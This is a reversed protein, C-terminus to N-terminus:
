DVEDGTRTDAHSSSMLKVLELAEDHGRIREDLQAERVAELLRKFEPGPKMGIAQLDDGTLLPLPNLDEPRSEALLKECFEVHALDKGSAIADARHLALLEGIGPHALIPKLKSPRMMPADALYQHHQVLWIIRDSDANSLRLRKCLEATIRSGLHEHHHFTYRDPTRAFTGPKGIDHLLAAMALPFSVAAPEPWLPGRLEEIVRVTHEWLDGTPAHPPGQPIGITRALEPLVPPLLDFDRLLRLGRGRNHNTLIKRLEDAIREPSVVTIRDAMRRAAAFTGPDIALGFRAAMRVARLIRLKDEEFRQFPDGIARLIRGDIDDRGGVYDLIAGTVPDFFMGNITFDRRKADEEASSFTVTDPRRGDSYAGDSRFTAIQVKLWIGDPGRPGLVEVVGFSAGFSHSRKFLAQVQEPRADTAIDYDAPTLGLQEDRVCGGAWLAQYGVKQLRAVIEIAFERETM